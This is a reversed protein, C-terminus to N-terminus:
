NQVYERFNYIEGNYTIVLRATGNEDHLCMPQAGGPGPDIIALRRHALGALGDESLWAGEGDPGRAIMHANIRELEVEDVLPAGRYVFIAALGCM